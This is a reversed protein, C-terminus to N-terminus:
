PRFDKRKRGLRARGLAVLGLLASLLTIPPLGGHWQHPSLWGAGGILAVHTVAASIVVVRALRAAAHRAHIHQWALALTGIVGVLMALQVNLHLEGSPALFSEFTRLSFLLLSLLVHALVLATGTVGYVRPYIEESRRFYSVAFLALATSPLSKNLVYLPIREAPVPGLIVYRLLAYGFIAAWIVGAHGLARRAVLEDDTM